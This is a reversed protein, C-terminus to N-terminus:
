KYKKETTVMEYSASNVFNKFMFVNTLREGLYGGIRYQYSEETGPYVKGECYKDKNDEIRKKIDTGVIEVYKNLVGFVFDCYKIFDDKKMIFMNCPIFVQSKMANDFASLYDQFHESIITRCINLDEINHCASYNGFMDTGFVLRRATIVDITKFLEDIDPVNDMFSFYKRYHCFGVYDKLPLNEYVWKYHWFESYFKEDMPLDVKNCFYSKLKYEDVGDRITSLVKYVDNTVSPIFEKYTCIFIDLNRNDKM